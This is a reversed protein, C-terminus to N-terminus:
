EGRPVTTRLAEQARHVRQKIANNTTGLVAAAEACSLGEIRVLVYASRLSESLMMLAAGVKASFAQGRAICEPSLADSAICQEIVTADTTLERRRRRRLRDVSTTRAIALSWAVVNGGPVFADRARHIKLFVEQLLDDAEVPGILLVCARYLRPALVAYLDDFAQDDGAAYRAM